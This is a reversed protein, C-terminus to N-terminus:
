EAALKEIKEAAADLARIAAIEAKTGDQNLRAIEANAHALRLKMDSLEDALLLAGMLFLRTEGLQGVDSSVQRVQRDFLRALESLHPEQGDECGVMYPRGNVHITVQAM